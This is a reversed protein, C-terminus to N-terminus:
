AEPIVWDRKRGGPTTPLYESLFDRVDSKKLGGPGAEGDSEISDLTEELTDMWTFFFGGGEGAVYGFVRDHQDEGQNLSVQSKTIKSVLTVCLRWIMSGDDTEPDYAWVDISGDNETVDDIETTDSDIHQNLETLLEGRNGTFEVSVRENHSQSREIAEALTM